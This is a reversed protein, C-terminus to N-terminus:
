LDAAYLIRQQRPAPAARMHAAPRAAADHVGAGNTATAAAGDGLWQPQGPPLTVRFTSGKEPVSEVSIDGGLQDLLKRVIFLGLGAGAYSRADSSDVQRFMEFIVPLHAAPIGIGTDRVSIVC